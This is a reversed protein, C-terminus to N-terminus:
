HGATKSAVKSSAKHVGRKTKHGVTRAAHATAHGTSKAASKVDSGAAKMDHGATQAIGTGLFMATMCITVIAIKMCESQPLGPELARIKV